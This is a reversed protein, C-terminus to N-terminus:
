AKEFTAKGYNVLQKVVKMKDKSLDQQLLEELQANFDEVKLFGEDLHDRWRNKCYVDWIEQEEKTLTSPHNRARYRFLLTALRPDSFDFDIKGLSKPPTARVEICKKKDSKELFGDYLKLEPDFKEPFSKSYSAQVVYPVDDKSQIEQIRELCLKKDIGLKECSAKSVRDLPMIVPCKNISIEHLGIREEDGEEKKKFLRERLERASLELVPSPDTMLNFGLVSNSKSPHTAVPLIVALYNNDSGYFSDFHLVPKPNSIRRRELGLIEACHGKLRNDFCYNFLRKNCNKLLKALAITARVDALADHADHEIGNAQTLDELKTSYKGCDKRPWIIDGDPHFARFLRVVNLLDWRSNGKASHHEYPNYFNRYLCHRTFEDDFNISNYGAICTGPQVFEHYFAATFKAESLGKENALQPTIGTVLCAGPEPVIDKTLKCYKVLPKGVPNLDYDTRLGAFQALRDRAPNRGFTEFDYWYITEM